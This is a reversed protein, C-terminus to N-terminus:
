VYHIFVDPKGLHFHLPHPLHPPTTDLRLCPDFASILRSVPLCTLLIPSSYLSLPAHTLRLLMALVPCTLSSWTLGILAPCVFAPYLICLSNRTSAAFIVREPTECLHRPRQGFAVDQLHVCACIAYRSFMDFPPWAELATNAVM